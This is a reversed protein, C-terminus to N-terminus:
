GYFITRPTTLTVLYRFSHPTINPAVRGIRNNNVEGLREFTDFFSLKQATIPTPTTTRRTTTTVPSTNKIAQQVRNSQTATTFRPNDNVSQKKFIVTSRDSFQIPRYSIPKRSTFDKLYFEFINFPKLTVSKIKRKTSNWNIKTTSYKITTIPKVTTTTKIIERTSTIQQKSSERKNSQVANNITSTPRTSLTTSKISTKKLDNTLINFNFKRPPTSEIIKNVKSTTTPKTTTPAKTTKTTSSITTLRTTTIPPNTTIEETSFIIPEDFDQAITKVDFRPLTTTQKKTTTTTTPQTVAPRPKFDNETKFCEDIWSASKGQCHPRYVAWATFGNGAFRQHEDYIQLMCTIDNSIDNDRLEECKMGCAKGSEGCWYIDSIQFLGHDESGDANLRGIASTNFNSEHKAICVWTSVQEMPIRYKYRLEQALECKEYVKGENSDSSIDNQFRLPKTYTKQPQQVVGPRPKIPLIENDNDFCGEIYSSSQGKCRPYVAWATFGDGSLRTHEDYIQLICKVDNTIDNDRVDECKLGCAKGTEGCWYKDSIQFLGHDESGDWNLRGIASTNYASEHKAICVWTSIQEMPIDHQYHLERALECREYVKGEEYNKNSSFRTSPVNKKTNIIIENQDTFCEQIHRNGQRQCDIGSPWAQFGNNFIRQHEAFITRVCAVDDQLNNDTLSSCSIGCAKNSYYQEDCWFESSIQYIGYSGQGISQTNLNSQREAICVFTGIQDFPISHIDRLERALECKEYVKSKVCFIISASTFILRLILM